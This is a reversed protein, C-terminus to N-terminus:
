PNQPEEFHFRLPPPPPAGDTLSWWARLLVPNALIPEGVSLLYTEGLARSQRKFEEVGLNDLDIAMLQLYDIRLAEPWKEVLSRDFPGNQLIRKATREDIEAM